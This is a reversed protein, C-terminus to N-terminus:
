SRTGDVRDDEADVLDLKGLLGVVQFVRLAPGTGLHVALRRGTARARADALLVLRVGSSDVFSLRSLDIVLVDPATEEAAAVRGEADPLTSIDLEGELTLVVTAEQRPARSSGTM